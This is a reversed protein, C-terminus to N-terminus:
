LRHCIFWDLLVGLLFHQFLGSLLSRTRYALLGWILGGIISGYIEGVPKGLHIMVSAMVQVLIANGVGMSEQLGHQMFGRFQFEWGLYFLLYAMAHLAFTPPSSGAHHNIPYEKWFSPDRAALYAILVIGPACILISRLTRVGNGLRVGYDALKERFVLKVIMAPLVGMLLLAGLFSYAAATAQPDSFWVFRDSLQELYYQPSAFCKWTVLTVTSVLLIVTPKIQWGPRAARFSASAITPM